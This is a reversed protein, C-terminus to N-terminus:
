PVWAPLPKHDAAALFLSQVTALKGAITARNANPYNNRWVAARVTIVGTWATRALGLAVCVPPLEQIRVRPETKACGALACGGVLLLM